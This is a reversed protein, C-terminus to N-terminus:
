SSLSVHGGQWASLLEAPGFSADLGKCSVGSRSVAVLPVPDDTLVLRHRQLAALDRADFKATELWKISGVFLLQKALPARDAGVIDVEIDNTRTWYSGIAPTDPLGQSPLLRAISERLIPEIARGRWATWSAKIRTLVLDARRREILVQHPEIFNLWFRLYPDALRYRREKSPRTSIPTEAAVMRKHTLIELARTLSSSALGGAANAINGFTREGSGIVSLVQRPQAGQPFEAALSREASVTLASLPNTVAKELYSWLDEGKDWELCNLPLGGTILYADFAEAPKLGLLNALDLPNLPGVVMERGRQHFPRDYQNLAEMMALDSGVLILLVPKRSLQTDWARQLISEFGPVSDILYPVEDIVIITAKDDPVLTALTRLAAAWDAPQVDAALQRNDLNSDTVAQWFSLLEQGAPARSATHFVAPVKSRRIFEEVLSSKGIRRRGRMQLCQGPARGSIAKRVQALTWNLAKLEDSRGVFDM